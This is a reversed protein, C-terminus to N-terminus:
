KGMIVRRSAYAATLQARLAEVTREIVDEESAEGMPVAGRVILSDDSGRYGCFVTSAKITEADMENVGELDIIIEIERKAPGNLLEAETCGLVECLKKIDSARPERLGSEWRRVTDVSVSVLSALEIQTLNANKRYHRIVSKM